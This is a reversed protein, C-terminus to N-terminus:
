YLISVLIGLSYPQDFERGVCSVPTTWAAFVIEKLGFYCCILIVDKKGCTGYVRKTSMNKCIDEINKRCSHGMNHEDGDAFAIM